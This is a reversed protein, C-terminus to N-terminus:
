AFYKSLAYFKSGTKLFYEHVQDLTAEGLLGAGLASVRESRSSYDGSLVRRINGRDM